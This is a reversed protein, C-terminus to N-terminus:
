HITDTSNYQSSATIRFPIVLIVHYSYFVSSTLTIDLKLQATYMEEYISLGSSLLACERVIFTCALLRSHTDGPM